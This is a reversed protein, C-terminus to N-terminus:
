DIMDGHGEAGDRARKASYVEGCRGIGESDDGGEGDSGEVCGWGAWFIGPRERM